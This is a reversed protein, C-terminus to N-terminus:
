KTQCGCDGELVFLDNAHNKAKRWSEGFFIVVWIRLWFQASGQKLGVWLSVMAASLQENFQQELERKQTDQAETVAAAM